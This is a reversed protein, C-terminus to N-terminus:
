VNRTFTGKDTHSGNRGRILSIWDVKLDKCYNSGGSIFLYFIETINNKPYTGFGRFM